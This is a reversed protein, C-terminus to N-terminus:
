DLPNFWQKGRKRLEVQRRLREFLDVGMQLCLDILDIPVWNEVLVNGERRYWDFDRMTLLKGTPPIGLFEGQHISFPVDWIGLSSYCGEALYDNTAMGISRGRSPDAYELWDGFASIWPIQHFDRFEEFSLCAGIGSPGYWHVQPHWPEPEMARLTKGDPSGFTRATMGNLMLEVLQKTKRTELESQETFLLGDGTRPGPVKGGEGGRAPPLVQFGAQRILALLDFQVYSEAIKGDRMLYFQGFHINATKGTAPIGLWDQVFTGTLYGLGSVWEEGGSLGGMLIQTNRQLDPFSRLLPQWFNTIVADTGELHNIPHSGNWNVDPHMAAQIPEAIKDHPVYNMKQWYNWVLEKNKQNRQIETTQISM